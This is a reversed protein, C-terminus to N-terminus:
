KRSQRPLGAARAYARELLWGLFSYCMVIWFWYAM